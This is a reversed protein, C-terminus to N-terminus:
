FGLHILYLVGLLILVAIARSVRCRGHKSTSKNVIIAKSEKGRGSGVGRGETSDVRSLPDTARTDVGLTHHVSHHPGQAFPCKM